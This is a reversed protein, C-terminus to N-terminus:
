DPRSTLLVIETKQQVVDITNPLVTYRADVSTLENSAIFFFDDTQVAMRDSKLDLIYLM